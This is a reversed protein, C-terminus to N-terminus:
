LFFVGGYNSLVVFHRIGLSRLNLKTWIKTFMDAINEETKIEKIVILGEETSQQVMFYKTGLYRTANAPAEARSIDRAAKSDCYVEPCNVKIRFGEKLVYFLHIVEKALMHLALHESIGSSTAVWKM